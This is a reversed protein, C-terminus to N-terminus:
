RAAAPAIEERKPSIAQTSSTGPLDTPKAEPEIAASSAEEM